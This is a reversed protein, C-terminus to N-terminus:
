RSFTIWAHGFAALHVHLGDTEQTTHLAGRVFHAQQGATEPLLADLSVSVTDGSPNHLCLVQRSRDSPQRLVAWVDGAALPRVVSDDAFASAIAPPLPCGPQEAPGQLTAQLSALWEPVADDTRASATTLSLPSM